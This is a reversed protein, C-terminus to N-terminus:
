KLKILVASFFDTIKNWLGFVKVNSGVEIDGSATVEGDQKVVTNNDATVTIEGQHKTEITINDGDIATVEGKAVAPKVDASIDYVTTAEITDDSRVGHVWVRDGAKIDSLTIPTNPIRILKAESADVTVSTDSKTQIVFSSSGVSTVTGRAFMKGFLGRHMGRHDGNHHLETKVDAEASVRTAANTNDSGFHAYTIAPILMATIAAVVGLKTFLRM